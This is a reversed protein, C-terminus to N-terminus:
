ELFDVRALPVNEGLGELDEEAKQVERGGAREELELWSGGAAGLPSGGVLLQGPLAASEGPQIQARLGIEAGGPHPSHRTQELTM